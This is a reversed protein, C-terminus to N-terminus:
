TLLHVSYRKRVSVFLILLTIYHLYITPQLFAKGLVLKAIKSSTINMLM